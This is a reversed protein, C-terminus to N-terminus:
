ECMTQNLLEIIASFIKFYKGYVGKNYWTEMIIAKQSKSQEGM